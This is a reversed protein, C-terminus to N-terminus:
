AAIAQPPNFELIAEQSTVWGGTIKAAERGSEDKYWEVITRSLAYYRDAVEDVTEATKGDPSIRQFHNVLRDEALAAIRADDISRQQDSHNSPPILRERTYDDPNPRPPMSNYSHHAFM